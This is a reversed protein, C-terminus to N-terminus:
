YSAGKGSDIAMRLSVEAWTGRGLRARIETLQARAADLDGSEAFGQGMYSRALLNDPNRAIAQRYYANGLDIDGTKRAVFGRYTLVRDDNPDSMAALAQLANDYQGAYAFERVAQYLTDDDLSGQVPAVCKKKAESWVKGTKCTTTTDTPTPPTSSDSGAAFVAVPLILAAAILLHKM